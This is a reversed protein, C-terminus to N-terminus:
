LEGAVLSYHAKWLCGLEAQSTSVRIDTSGGRAAHSVARQERKTMGLHRGRSGPPALLSLAKHEDNPSLKAFEVLGQLNEQPRDLLDEHRVVAYRDGLLNSGQARVRRNVVSWLRAAAVPASRPGRRPLFQTDVLQLDVARHSLAMDRGDPRRPPWCWGSILVVLVRAGGVTSNPPWCRGSLAWSSEEPWNPGDPRQDWHPRHAKPPEHHCGTVRSSEIRGIDFATSYSEGTGLRESRAFFAAGPIARAMGDRSLRAAPM